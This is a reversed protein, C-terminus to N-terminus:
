NPSCMYWQQRIFLYVYRDFTQVVSFIIVTSFIIWHSTQFMHIGNFWHFCQLQWLNEACNSRVYNNFTLPFIVTGELPRILLFQSFSFNILSRASLLSKISPFTKNLHWSWWWQRSTDKKLELVLKLLQWRDQRTSMAWGTTDSFFNFYETKYSLSIIFM